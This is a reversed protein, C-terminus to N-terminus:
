RMYIHWINEVINDEKVTTSFTISDIYELGQLVPYILKDLIVEQTDISYIKSNYEQIMPILESQKDELSDIESELSNIEAELRSIKTKIASVNVDTNRQSQMSMLLRQSQKLKEKKKNLKDRKNDTEKKVNDLLKQTGSLFANQKNIKDKIWESGWEVLDLLKEAMDGVKIFQYSKIKDNFNSLLYIDSELSSKRDKYTDITKHLLKRNISVLMYNGLICYAPEIKKLPLAFYRITYGRYKEDNLSIFPNNLLNHMLEQTKDPDNIKVFLVIEPVYYSSTKDIDYLYGGLEKGLASTIDVVGLGKMEAVKKIKEIFSPGKGRRTSLLSTLDVCSFWQYMLVNKPIFSVTKNVIPPCLFNQRIERVLKDKNFLVDLKIFINDNSKMSLIFSDFGKIKRFAQKLEKKIQKNREEVNVNQEGGDISDRFGTQKDIWNVIEDGQEKLMNYLAQINFYFDFSSMSLSEKISRRYVEDSSLPSRVGSFADICMRAADDGTGIILFNKLKVYSFSMKQRKLHIVTVNYGKYELREIMIDKAFKKIYDPLLTMIVTGPSLRTVIFVSSFLENKIKSTVPSKIKDIHSANFGIPYIGIMMESNFIERLIAKTAVGGPPAKLFKIIDGIRPDLIKRKLLLNFDISSLTKWFKSHHFSNIMGSADKVYITTIAGAPLMDEPKLKSRHLYWFIVIDILVIVSIVILVIGIKKKM